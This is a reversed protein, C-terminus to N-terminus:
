GAQEARRRLADATLRPRGGAHETTVAAAAVALRAARRAPAGLSLAHTLTAVLADGAGTTDVREAPLHPLFEEGDPLGVLNGEGGVEVVVLSPGAACLTRVVERAAPLGDVRTGTLQEAERADARLVDACALLSGRAAPADPAGDLVVRAGASRALRAAELATTAPQQLQIVVSEAADIPGSAAFVDREGVLMDGPIDELYRWAAADDVIDVILASEADRRRVVHGVDVGDAAAQTRLREGVDDDGVVGVLVPADGLQALAVAQNAGKGGLLERRSRVPVSEGPGPAARVRLVLDRAMQGVVVIDSM